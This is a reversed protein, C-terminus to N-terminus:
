NMKYKDALGDWEADTLAYTLEVWSEGGNNGAKPVDEDSWKIDEYFARLVALFNSKGANNAGVIMLYDHVEVDADIISRFNCICLRRLKM